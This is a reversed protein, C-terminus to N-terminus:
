TSGGMSLSCACTTSAWKFFSADMQCEGVAHGSELRRRGLERRGHFPAHPEFVEDQGMQERLSGQSRGGQRHRVPPGGRPLLDVEDNLRGPGHQGHFDLRRLPWAGAVCAM